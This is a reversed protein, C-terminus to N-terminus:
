TTSLPSTWALFLHKFFFHLLGLPSTWWPPSLHIQTNLSDAIILAIAPRCYSLLAFSFLLHDIPAHVFHQASADIYVRLVFVGFSQPMVKYSARAEESLDGVQASTDIYTRLVTRGLWCMMLFLLLCLLIGVLCASLGHCLPPERRVSPFHFSFELLIQPRIDEPTQTLM